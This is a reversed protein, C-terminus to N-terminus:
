KKIKKNIPILTENTAKPNILFFDYGNIPISQLPDPDKDLQGLSRLCMLVINLNKFFLIFYFLFEFSM